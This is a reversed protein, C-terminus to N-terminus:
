HCRQGCQQKCSVELGDIYLSADAAADVETMNTVGGTVDYVLADLGADGSAQVRIASAAGAEASTLVLHSGDVSNVISALVTTNFESDNIAGAIEVLTDNPSAVDVTFTEAGSTITLTGSGIVTDPAAFADSGSRTAAPWRM